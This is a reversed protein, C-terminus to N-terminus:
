TAKKVDRRSIVPIKPWDCVKSSLPENLDGYLYDRFFALPTENNKM